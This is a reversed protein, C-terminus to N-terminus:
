AAEAYAFRRDADVIRANILTGSAAPRSLKVPAFTPTRASSAQEVLVEVDRGMLSALHAALAAEGAARLRTARAKIVDGKLQPM